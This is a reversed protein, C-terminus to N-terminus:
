LRQIKLSSILGFHVRDSVNTNPNGLNVHNFGNFMEIRFQLRKVETFDFNKFFSLDFNVFSPGM